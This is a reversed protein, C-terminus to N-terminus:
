AAQVLLGEKPRAMSALWIAAASLACCAISLWFAPRYSGTADHIVGAMWPGAAGGGTLAITLTGFISGFHPGDFAEKVIPGMVSTVAYGLFGQAVVMSYLLTRSPENELAILAGYCIGFGACSISWVWERGIRDALAGLGIQGPIAIVSVLGLAWAAERASFGIETLYKTQHIQVVYWAVMSCFYGLAIWWFCSTAAARQLTWATLCANADTKSRARPTQPPAIAGDANLGIDEPRHRLFFTLPGIVLLVLSALAYCSTRWGDRGIIEQLWPLIVIAGVGAGSFAIGIALARQKVFWNPLFLSHATYTMLNAGGCAMVGLSLYLQWPRSLMPAAALGVAMLVVGTGIIVRPGRLDMARGVFPSTVASLVFGFSFAGAVVGRDWAFEDLLPPLLLSYATRATVAIAMTVFAVGIILWGYYFPLRAIWRPTAAETM